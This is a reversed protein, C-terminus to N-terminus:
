VIGGEPTEGHEFRAQRAKLEAREPFHQTLEKGFYMDDCILSNWFMSGWCETMHLFLKTGTRDLVWVCNNEYFGASDGHCECGTYFCCDRNMPDGYCVVIGVYQDEGFGTYDWAFSKAKGDDSSRRPKIEVFISFKPLYFDPLYFRGDSLKFGEPEYEYEIGLDDFFVAWRAELRSRFRYGNYFTEIPKIDM